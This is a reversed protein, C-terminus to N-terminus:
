LSQSKEETPKGTKESESKDIKNSGRGGKMSKIQAM